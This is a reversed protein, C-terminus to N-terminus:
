CSEKAEKLLRATSYHKHKKSYVPRQDLKKKPGRKHSTLSECPVNAAIATVLRAFAAPELIRWGSWQDSPIYKMLTRYDGAVENALYYGSVEAAVDAGHAERMSGRVLALVNGAMLAMAFMLLSARPKGLGKVECHLSQTLFQFHTEITWRLRYTEAITLASVTYPLNTLLALTREGDRTKEFLKLEIRRLTLQEVTEPDTVVVGQEYVVGTETEGIRRRGKRQCPLNTRHQRLLFFGQQRKVGFVFKTTCFNRDAVWLDNAQVRPLLQILLAREQTHANECLVLDSVLGLAPEYVM